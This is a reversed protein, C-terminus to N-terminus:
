KIYLVARFGINLHTGSVTGYFRYCAPYVGSADLYSGGRYVRYQTSTNGGYFSTEETWEWLNGAMDFIHYKETTSSAGTTLLEGGNVNDKYTGKTGDTTQTGFPQLIWNSGNHSATAKRGTYTLQKNKYNGWSESNTLNAATLDTKEVLKNLTVDWQTGTILGSSVYANNKYMNEANAKSKNWDIFNWPVIGAKSQPVGDKNYVQNSGTHTQATTYETLNAPNSTDLGAEYRAVYFGGYKEVQTKEAQSTTTDWWTNALSTNTQNTNNWKSTKQYESTTCPIWVFQNGQLSTTYAYTTKDTTGDYKDAVNDSIIVGNSLNGGVYYFGQPVPVTEGEGVSVAYVTAVKELTKVETGDSTKIYTVHQTGWGDKLAVETGANQPNEPTNEPLKTGGNGAVIADKKGTIIGYESITFEFGDVVVKLDYEVTEIPENIGDIKNLNEKLYDNNLTGTTDYSATVALAVKEAANAYKSENVALQTKEFLGSGTLGQITVGALILLIIITIVLAILTIGKVSKYNVM